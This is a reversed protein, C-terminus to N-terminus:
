DAFTMYENGTLKQIFKSFAKTEKNPLKFKAPVKVGLKKEVFTALEDDKEMDGYSLMATFMESGAAAFLAIAEAASPAVWALQGEGGLVVVPSSKFDDKGSESWLAVIDGDGSSAFSRFHKAAADAKEHFWHKHEDVEESPSMDGAANESDAVWGKWAEIAELNNM